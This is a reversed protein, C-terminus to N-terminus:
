QKWGEWVNGCTKCEYSLKDSGEAIQWVEVEHYELCSQTM